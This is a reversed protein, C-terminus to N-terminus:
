LIKFLNNSVPASKRQFLKMFIRRKYFVAKLRGCKAAAFATEGSLLAAYLTM